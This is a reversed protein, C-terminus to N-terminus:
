FFFARRERKRKDKIKKEEKIKTGYVTGPSLSLSLSLSLSCCHFNWLNWDFGEVVVLLFLASTWLREPFGWLGFGGKLGLWSSVLVNRWSRTRERSKMFKLGTAKIEYPNEMIHTKSRKSFPNIWTQTQPAFMQSESVMSKWNNLSQYNRQVSM